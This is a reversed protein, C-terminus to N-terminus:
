LYSNLDLFFITFIRIFLRSNPTKLIEIGPNSIGIFGANATAKALPSAINVECYLAKGIFLM